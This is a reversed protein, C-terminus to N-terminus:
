TDRHAGYDSHGTDPDCPMSFALTLVLPCENKELVMEAVGGCRQTEFLGSCVGMAHFAARFAASLAHPSFEVSGRQSVALAAALQRVQLQSDNLTRVLQLLASKNQLDDV